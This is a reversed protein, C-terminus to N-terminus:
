AQIYRMLTLIAIGTGLLIEIMCVVTEPLADYNDKIQELIQDPIYRPLSKTPKPYDDPFILQKKTVDIWDFRGCDEFFQRIHGLRHVKSQYAPNTSSYDVIFEIILKRDIDQSQLEARGTIKRVADDEVSFSQVTATHVKTDIDM